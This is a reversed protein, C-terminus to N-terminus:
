SSEAWDPRELIKDVYNAAGNCSIQDNRVEWGSVDTVPYKLEWIEERERRVHGTHTVWHPNHAEYM